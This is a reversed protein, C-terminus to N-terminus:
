KLKTKSLQKMLVFVVLAIILFDIFAGIFSGINLHVPGLILPTERWEGGPIFFTIIPMLIDAV